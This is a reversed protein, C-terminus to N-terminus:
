GVALDKRDPASPQKELWGNDIMINAGDEALEGVEIILRSYAASLDRRAAGGMSAGYYGIGANNLAATHFANELVARM